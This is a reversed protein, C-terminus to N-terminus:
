AGENLREKLLSEMCDIGRSCLGHECDDDVCGM